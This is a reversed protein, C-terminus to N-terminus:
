QKKRVRWSGCKDCLVAELKPLEIGRKKAALVTQRIQKKALAKRWHKAHVCQTIITISM